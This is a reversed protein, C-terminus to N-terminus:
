QDDHRPSKAVLKAGRTAATVVDADFQTHMAALKTYLNGTHTVVYKPPLHNLAYAVVDAKCRECTCIGETSDLVAPMIDLVLNEMYNQMRVDSM